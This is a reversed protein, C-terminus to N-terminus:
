GTGKGTPACKVVGLLELAELLNEAECLAVVRHLDPERARRADAIKKAAEAKTLLLHM